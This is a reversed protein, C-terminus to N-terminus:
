TKMKNFNSKFAGYNALKDAKSNGISLEDTNSTHAKIYKIHLNKYKNFILYIQKVLDKNPINKVWNNANMKTGYMTICKISYDSDTYITVNINNIIDDQIIETAKIIAYLEARNNTPINYFPKSVNRSDNEGFYIGIGAKANPLGNNICSGDTFIRIESNSTINTKKLSTTKHKIIDLQASINGKKVFNEADKKNKFKKFKASPYRHTQNKCEGWTTYVGPILGTHVAYYM